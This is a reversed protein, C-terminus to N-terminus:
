GRLVWFVRIPPVNDTYVSFAHQQTIGEEIRAAEASATRSISEGSYDTNHNSAHISYWSMMRMTADKNKQSDVYPLIRMFTDNHMCLRSSPANERIWVLNWTHMRIFKRTFTTTFPKTALRTQITKKWACKRLLSKSYCCKKLSQSEHQDNQILIIALANM